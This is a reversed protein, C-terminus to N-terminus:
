NSNLPFVIENGYNIYAFPNLMNIKNGNSDNYICTQTNNTFDVEVSVGIQSKMDKLPVSDTQAYGRKSVLLTPFSFILLM